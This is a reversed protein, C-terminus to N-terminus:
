SGDYPGCGDYPLWNHHGGPSYWASEFIRDQESPTTLSWDDWHEAVGGYSIWLPRSIQYRGKHSPNSSETYSGGHEVMSVCEKATSYGRHLKGVSVSVQKKENQHLLYLIIKENYDDIADKLFVGLDPGVYSVTAFARVQKVEPRTKEKREATPSFVWLLLLSLFISLWIVFKNKM